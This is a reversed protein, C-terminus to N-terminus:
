SLSRQSPCGDGARPVAPLEVHGVALIAEVSAHGVRAKWDFDVAVVDQNLNRLLRNFFPVPVEHRKSKESTQVHCESVTAPHITSTFPSARGM